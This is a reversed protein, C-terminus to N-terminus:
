GLNKNQWEEIMKTTKPMLMYILLGTGMIPAVLFMSFRGQIIVDTIGVPFGGFMSMAAAFVGLPI